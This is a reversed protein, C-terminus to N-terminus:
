KDWEFHGDLKSECPSNKPFDIGDDVLSCIFDLCLRTHTLVKPLFCINLQSLNVWQNASHESLHLTRVLKLAVWNIRNKVLFHGLWFPLYKSNKNNTIVYAMNVWFIVYAMVDMWLVMPFQPPIPYLYPSIRLHYTHDDSMLDHWTFLPRPQQCNVDECLCLWTTYYTIIHVHPTPTSKNSYEVLIM